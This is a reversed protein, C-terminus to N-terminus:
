SEATLLSLILSILYSTGCVLSVAILQQASNNFQEGVTTTPDRDVLALQLIHLGLEVPVVALPDMTREIICEKAM